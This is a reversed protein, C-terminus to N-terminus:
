RPLLDALKRQPLDPATQHERSNALHRDPFSKPGIFAPTFDQVLKGLNSAYLSVAGFNRSVKQIANAPGPAARM